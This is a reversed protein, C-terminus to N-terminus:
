YEGFFYVENGVVFCVGDDGAFYNDSDIPIGMFYGTDGDYTLYEYNVLINGRKNILCMQNDENMLFYYGSKYFCEYYREDYLTEGNSNELKWTNNSKYLLIGNELLYETKPTSVIKETLVGQNSLTFKSNENEQFLGNEILNGNEDITFSHFNYEGIRVIETIYFTLNIDLFEDGAYGFGHPWETVVQHNSDFLITHQLTDIGNEGLNAIVSLIYNNKSIWVKRILNTSYINETEEVFYCYDVSSIFSGDKKYFNIIYNDEDYEIFCYSNDNVTGIKYDAYEVEKNLLQKGDQNVVTYEDEYVTQIYLTTDRGDELVYDNLFWIDDYKVPLIENGNNDLVGYLLGDNKSVIYCGHCYDEITYETTFALGNTTINETKEDTINNSTTETQVNETIESNKNTDVVDTENQGCGGLLSLCLLTWLYKNKKM